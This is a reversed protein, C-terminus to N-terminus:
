PTVDKSNNKQSAIRAIKEREVLQQVQASFSTKEDLVSPQEKGSFEHYLSLFANSYVPNPIIGNGDKFAKSLTLYAKDQNSRAAKILWDVGVQLNEKGLIGKIYTEGLLYQAEPIFDAHHWHNVANQYSQQVGKGKQYAKGILIHAPTYGQDALQKAQEILEQTRPSEKPLYRYEINIAQYWLIPNDAGTIQALAVFLSSNPGGYRQSRALQALSAVEQNNLDDQTYAEKIESIAAFKSQEGQNPVQNIVALKYCNLRDEQPANLCYQNLDTNIADITSFNAAYKLALSLNGEAVLKSLEPALENVDYSSYYRKYFSILLPLADKSTNQRHWIKRYLDGTENEEISAMELKLLGLEAKPYVDLLSRYLEAANEPSYTEERPDAYIAALALKAELYGENALRSLANEAESSNGQKHLHKSNNVDDIVCGSLLGCALLSTSLRLSM